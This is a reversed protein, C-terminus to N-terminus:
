MLRPIGGHRHRAGEQRRAVHRRASRCRDVARPPRRHPGSVATSIMLRRQVARRLDGLASDLADADRGTASLIERRTSIDSM